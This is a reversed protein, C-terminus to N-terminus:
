SVMTKTESFGIGVWGEAKGELIIDLYNSDENNVRAGFYFDDGSNGLSTPYEANDSQSYIVM